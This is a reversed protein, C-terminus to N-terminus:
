DNILTVSNSTAPAKDDDANSEPTLSSEPPDIAVVFEVADSTMPVGATM